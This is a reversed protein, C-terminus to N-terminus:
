NYKLELWTQIPSATNWLETVVINRQYLSGQTLGVDSCASLWHITIRLVNSSMVKLKLWNWAWRLQSRLPVWRSYLEFGSLCLMTVYVYKLILVTSIPMNNDRLIKWRNPNGLQFDVSETLFFDTLFPCNYWKKSTWFDQSLFVLLFNQFFHESFELDWITKQVSIKRFNDNPAGSEKGM